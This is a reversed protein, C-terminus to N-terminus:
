ESRLAVMPEISAARRAPVLGAMLASLGLACVALALTLPDYAHVDYLQHAM